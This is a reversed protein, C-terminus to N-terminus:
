KSPRDGQPASAPLFRRGRKASAERCSECLTKLWWQGVNGAASLEGPLGCWECVKASQAEAEDILAHFHDQVDDEAALPQANYRLTGFKEKVQLVEHDIDLDCLKLHLQAILPYWGMGCSITREWNAPIRLLITALADRYHGADDPIQLHASTITEVVNRRPPEASGPEQFKPM